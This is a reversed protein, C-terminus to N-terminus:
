PRPRGRPAQEAAKSLGALAARTADLDLAFGYWGDGQRVARRFAPPSHGGVVIPPHPRQLPRPMAQIGSFSWFRGEFRPREQTWLAVVRSGDEAPTRPPQNRMMLSQSDPDFPAVVPALVASCVLAVLFIIALLALKDTALSRRLAATRGAAPRLSASEDFAYQGLAITEIRSM